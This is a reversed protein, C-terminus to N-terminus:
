SGVEIYQFAGKTLNLTLYWRIGEGVQLRTLSSIVNSRSVQIANNRVGPVCAIASEISLIFVRKAYSMCPLSEYMSCCMDRNLM